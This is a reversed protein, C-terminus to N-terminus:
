NRKIQLVLLYITVASVAVTLFDRMATFYFAFGREPERPVFIADGSEIDTDDPDVWNKSGAKIVMRDGRVAASGYGGAREIYYGDDMGPVFPVHGPRVVQGYVYVSHSATPVIIVDGDRLTIDASADRDIFLRRFDVSVFNRKITSEYTFYERDERDLETLRMEKLREYDPYREVPDLEENPNKRIIIGEAVAANETFGGALAIVESLRTSERSVPYGGTYRVEGKVTVTSRERLDKRERVFVRDDRQLAVDYAGSLVAGGDATFTETATGGGTFRVIRISDTVATETFGQAIRLIARLSDGPHYEFSGPLRVGGYISIRNAELREPPVFLVDGDRLRPNFGVDGTAYYRVLDVVLTDKGRLLLINRMSFPPKEEPPEATYSVIKNSEDFASAAKKTDPVLNALYMAKDARDIPSVEYAGPASVVGAVHVNFTRPALLTVTVPAKTYRKAAEKGILDKVERLTKERVSIEGVTPVLVSGEPTVMTTYSLPIEGWINISLVDMPGVAYAAPDIAGDLAVGVPLKVGALGGAQETGAQPGFQFPARSQQSTFARRYYKSLQDAKDMTEGELYRNPLQKEANKRDIYSELAQARLLSAPALCFLASLCVLARMAGMRPFSGARRARPAHHMPRQPPTHIMMTTIVFLPNEEGFVLRFRTGSSETAMTVPDSPAM